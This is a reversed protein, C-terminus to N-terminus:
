QENRAQSLVQGPPPERRDHKGRVCVPLWIRVRAPHSVRRLLPEGEEVGLDNLAPAGIREHHYREAAIREGVLEELFSTVTGSTGKLAAKLGSETAVGMM